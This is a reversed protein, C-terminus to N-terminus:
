YNQAAAIPWPQGPVFVGAARMTMETKHSLFSSGLDNFVFTLTM